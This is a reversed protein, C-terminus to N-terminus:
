EDLSFTYGDFVLWVGAAGAVFVVLALWLVWLRPSVRVPWRLAALRTSPALALLLAAALALGLVWVDQRWFFHAEVAWGRKDLSGTSWIALGLVAVIAAWTPLVLRVGSLRRAARPALSAAAAGVDAEPDDRLAQNSNSPM